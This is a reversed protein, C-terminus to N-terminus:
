YIVTNKDGSGFLQGMRVTEETTLAAEFSAKNEAFLLIVTSGVNFYGLEAGRLLTVDSYTKSQITASKPRDDWATVINGVIMAGVLIVAMPGIETDFICVLRENRSFLNPIALTTEQNVSFLTGPIYITERLRGPFPMHIRHYDRPALYITAFSGDMFERSLKESGGLLQTLNFYFGKAQFLTERDIKGMQSITGDVPCAIQNPGQVIPRLAPKLHRIFFDNFTPYAKYDEIVALSMDVQYRDIFIKILYNKLWPIRCKALLGMLRTYSHQPILYQRLVSFKLM